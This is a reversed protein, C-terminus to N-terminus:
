LHKVSPEQHKSHVTIDTENANLLSNEYINCFDDIDVRVQRNLDSLEVFLANIEAQLQVSSRILQSKQSGEM